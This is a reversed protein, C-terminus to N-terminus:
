KPPVLMVRIVNKNVAYNGHALAPREFLWLWHTSNKVSRNEVVVAELEPVNWTLLDSPDSWAVIHPRALHNPTSVSQSALYQSRLQGWLELRRTMNAGTNNDLNALNLLRLQNAFFYVTSMRSLLYEVGQKQAPTAAAAETETIDLAALILYSGLSHAVIVFEQNPAREVTEGRSGDAAVNMSKGVLQRIGEVLYPQMQGMALVADTFGWDLVYSKVGRNILAGRARLAKLKQADPPEIWSYSVFRGPTTTDPKFSACKDIYTESPGTLTADNAVIQRCKVAFVLPWWDIEDVYIPPVHPDTRSLKWHDVFPASANWGESVSAGQRSKWIQEGLYSLQPAPADLAFSGKDAYETKGDLVGETTTCDKLHKCISKRLDESDSHGPGEDAMGHIYFIHLQTDARKLSEGLSEVRQVEPGASGQQAWALPPSCALVATLLLGAQNRRERLPM